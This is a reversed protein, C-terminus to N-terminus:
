TIIVEINTCIEHAVINKLERRDKTNSVAVFLHVCLYEHKYIGYADIIQDEIKTRIGNIKDNSCNTGLFTSTENFLRTYIYGDRINDNEM